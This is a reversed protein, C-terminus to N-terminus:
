DEGPRLLTEATVVGFPTGDRPGVIAYGADDLTELVTASDTDPPLVAPAEDMFGSVADEFLRLKEGGADLRGKNGVELELRLVDSRSLVGSVRGDRRLVPLFEVYEKSFAHLADGMTQDERLQTVQVALEKAIQGNISERALDIARVYGVLQGREDAIPLFAARHQAMRARAEEATADLPLARTNLTFQDLHANMDLSRAMLARENVIGYPKDHDVVIPVKNTQGTLWGTVSSVADRKDVAKFDTRLYTSLEAM